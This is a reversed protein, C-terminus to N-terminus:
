SLHSGLLTSFTSPILSLDKSFITTSRTPCYTSNSSFSPAPSSILTMVQLLTLDVQDSFLLFNKAQTISYTISSLWGQLLVILM